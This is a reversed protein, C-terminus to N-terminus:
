VFDNKNYHQSEDDYRDQYRHLEREIEQEEWEDSLVRIAHFAVAIGWGLVPFIAWFYNSTALNILIFFVSMVIWTLVHRYLKKKEM